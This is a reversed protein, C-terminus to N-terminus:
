EDVVFNQCRSEPCHPVDGALEYPARDSALRCKSENSRRSPQEYGSLRVWGARESKQYRKVVQRSFLVRFLAEISLSLVSYNM